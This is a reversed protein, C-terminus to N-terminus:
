LDAPRRHHRRLAPKYVSLCAATILALLDYVGAAVFWYRADANGDRVAMEAPAIVFTGVLMVSLLLLLKATVWRSRFVGWRSGLGLTLGTLLGAVSLPIGFVAGFMALVETFAAVRAANATTAVRIAVALFGATDGLLGVSVIIHTTLIARRAAPTLRWSRWSSRTSPDVSGADMSETLVDM